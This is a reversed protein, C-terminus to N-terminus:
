IKPLPSLVISCFSIFLYNFYYTHLIILRKHHQRLKHQQPRRKFVSLHIFMVWSIHDINLLIMICNDCNIIYKECNWLLGLTGKSYFRLTKAYCRKFGSFCSYVNKSLINNQFPVEQFIKNTVKLSNLSNLDTCSTQFNSVCLYFIVVIGDEFLHWYSLKSIPCWPGWKSVHSLNLELM